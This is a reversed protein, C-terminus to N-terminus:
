LLAAVVDVNRLAMKNEAADTGATGVVEVLGDTVREIERVKM